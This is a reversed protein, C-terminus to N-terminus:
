TRARGLYVDRVAENQEVDAFTGDALVAGAHLVTVHDGIERLFKIDHEIVITTVDEAIERILHATQRTEAPTMGATPEDLLMLKPRAALVMGIELWQKQGHSLMSAPLARMDALGTASLAYEIAEHQAAHGGRRVLSFPNQSGAAAIRLNEAVTAHSYVSPVQFKRVIGRRAREHTPLKTIDADEFVVRGRHPRLTGAILNFLTTKGAGNPGIICRLEGRPVSLSLGSLVELGGFRLTLDELVLGGL